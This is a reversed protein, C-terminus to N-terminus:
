LIAGPSNFVVADALGRLYTVANTGPHAELDNAVDQLTAVVLSLVKDRIDTESSM